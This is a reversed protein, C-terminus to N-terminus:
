GSIFHCYDNDLVSPHQHTRELQVGAEFSPCKALVRPFETKLGMPKCETSRDFDQIRGYMRQSTGLNEKSDIVTLTMTFWQHNIDKRIHRVSHYM